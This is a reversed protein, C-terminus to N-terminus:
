NVGISTRIPIRVRFTTGINEQSEFELTGGHAEVSQKVIALGLGTGQITGVNTARHFTDFLHKQDDEPIGIGQDSVSITFGEDDYMLDVLVDTKEPSYKIANTLLNTMISHILKPDADVFRSDGSMSFLIGQDTNNLSLEDVLERIQIEVDITEPNFELGVAEAKSVVLMDEMLRTMHRIQYSIKDLHQKRKEDNMKDHYKNLLDASLLITALPTRYEHSVMSVFRSKLENLEKEKQLAQRLEDELQKRQTVDRFSCIIGTLDDQDLIPSLIVDAYFKSKNADQAVIDLRQVQKQTKLIQFTKQFKELDDHHILRDLPKNFMADTHYHFQSEFAPNAQQIRGDPEALIIVDQTSNLIAEIRETSRQFDATRQAVRWELQASQQSVEDLLQRVNIASSAREAFIQVMRQNEKSFANLEPSQLDLVGIVKSEIILPVVLESQTAPNNPLYRDDQSVDPIYIAQGSRVASPVIGLGDLHLTEDTDVQYDGARALRIMKQESSDILLLGCDVQDLEEVVAKVVQEGIELLSNGKFLYSTANTLSTLEDRIQKRDTIDRAIQVVTRKNDVILDSPAFRSEFWRNGIPVDLNYEVLQTEGTDLARQIAPFIISAIDEPLVDNLNQNLFDSSYVLDHLETMGELYLGTEDILFVVDPSANIITRLREDSRHLAILTEEHTRQLERHNLAQTITLPLRHLQDTTVYNTVGKKVYEIAREENNSESVLIFPVVFEQQQLLQFAEWVDFKPTNIHSLIIDLDRSLHELYEVQTEVRAWDLEFGACELESKLLEADERNDEVLLVKLFTM